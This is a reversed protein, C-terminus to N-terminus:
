VGGRVPFDMGGPSHQEKGTVEGNAVSRASGQWRGNKPCKRTIMRTFYKEINEKSDPLICRQKESKLDFETIEELTNRISVYSKSLYTKM